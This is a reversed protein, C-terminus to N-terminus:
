LVNYWFFYKGSFDYASIKWFGYQAFLVHIPFLSFLEFVVVEAELNCGFVKHM